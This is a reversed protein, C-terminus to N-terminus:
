IIVKVRINWIWTLSKKAGRGERTMSSPEIVNRRSPMRHTSPTYRVYMISDTLDPGDHGTGGIGLLLFTISGDEMVRSPLPAFFDSVQIHFIRTFTIIQTSIVASLIAALVVL